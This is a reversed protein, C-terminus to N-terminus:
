IKRWFGEYPTRCSKYHMGSKECWRLEGLIGGFSWNIIRDHVLPIVRFRDYLNDKHKNLTMSTRLIGDWTGELCGVVNLALNGHIDLLM